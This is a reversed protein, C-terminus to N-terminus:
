RRGMECVSYSSPVPNCPRAGQRDRTAASCLPERCLLREMAVQENGRKMVRLRPDGTLTVSSQVQPAPVRCM